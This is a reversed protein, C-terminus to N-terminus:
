EHFGYGFENWCGYKCLLKVQSKRCDYSIIFPKESSVLVEANFGKRKGGFSKKLRTNIIDSKPIGCLKSLDRVLRNRHTFEVTNQEVSVGFASIGGRIANRIHVFVEEPLDRKLEISWPNTARPNALIRRHIGKLWLVVESTKIPAVSVYSILVSDM